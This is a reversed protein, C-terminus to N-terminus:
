KLKGLLRGAAGQEAALNRNYQLPMRPSKWRLADMIGALNEGSAFYDQNVGVRTSHASIQKLQDAFTRADLDGFAGADFARRLIARFIPTVSGAHLATEGVDYETRAAQAARPVFWSSDWRANWAITAPDVKGRGAQAKYRRVIVRRFVPGAEIGAAELWALLAAVSRPSLYATAGEGEQDGKSRGIRLLRADPDLAEQLDEVAIAVLVSARLGTDYAISLLARDRLAPLTGDCADLAARVNIGRPADALPDKVAGRFRLPRAQRQAVGAERRLGAVTLRVLEDGCPNAVRCLRHLKAISARYRTLSAPAAGQEARYKLFNAVTGPSAPITGLRRNRCWTDFATVDTRFARLSNPASASAYASLLGHDVAVGPERGLLALERALALDSSLPLDSSLAVGSM